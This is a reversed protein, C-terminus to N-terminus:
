CPAKRCYSQIDALNSVFILHSLLACLFHSTIFFISKKEFDVSNKKTIFLRVLGGTLNKVSFELSLIASKVRCFRGIAVTKM